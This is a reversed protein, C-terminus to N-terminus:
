KKAKALLKSLDNITIEEVTGYVREKNASNFHNCETCYGNATESQADHISFQGFWEVTGSCRTCKVPKEPKRLVPIKIM